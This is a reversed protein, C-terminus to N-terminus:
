GEWLRGSQRLTPKNPAFSSMNCYVPKEPPITAATDLAETTGHRSSSRLRRIERVAMVCLMYVQIWAQGPMALVRTPSFGSKLARRLPHLIGRKDSDSVPVHTCKVHNYLAIWIGADENTGYGAPRTSMSLPLGQVLQGLIKLLHDLHKELVAFGLELGLEDAERSFFEKLSASEPRNLRWM